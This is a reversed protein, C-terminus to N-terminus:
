TRIKATYHRYFQQTGFGTSDVAFQSEVASLPAAIAHDSQHLIPQDRPKRHGQFPTSTGRAALHIGQSGRRSSRVHFPTREGSYVKFAAAFLADPDPRVPAGPRALLSRCPPASIAFLFLFLEAGRVAGRQVRGTRRTPSAYPRRRLSPRRGDPTITTERKLFFEVAFRAQLDTPAARLGPLLLQATRRERPERPVKREAIALSGDVRSADARNEDHQSRFDRKRGHTWPKHEGEVSLVNYSCRLEMDLLAISQCPAIVYSCQSGIAGFVVFSSTTLIRTVASCFAAIM